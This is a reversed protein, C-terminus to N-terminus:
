RQARSNARLPFSGVVYSVGESKLQEGGKKRFAECCSKGVRAVEPHTYIVPPIAEYNVHGQREAIMDVVAIKPRRM